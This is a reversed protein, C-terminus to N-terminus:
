AALNAAESGLWSLTPVVAHPCGKGMGAGRRRPVASSQALTTTTVKAPTIAASRPRESSLQVFVVDRACLASCERLKWGVYRGHLLGSLYQPPSSFLPAPVPYKLQSSM